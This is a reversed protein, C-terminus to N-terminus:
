KTGDNVCGVTGFDAERVDPADVTESEFTITLISKMCCKMTGRAVVSDIDTELISACDLM